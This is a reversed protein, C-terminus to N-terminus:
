DADYREVRKTTRTTTGTGDDSVVAGPVVVTGPSTSSTQYSTTRRTVTDSCGTLGFLVLASVVAAVKKM